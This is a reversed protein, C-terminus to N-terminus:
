FKRECKFFWIEQDYNSHYRDAKFERIGEAFEKDYYRNRKYGKRGKGNSCLNDVYNYNPEGRLNGCASLIVACLISIVMVIRM